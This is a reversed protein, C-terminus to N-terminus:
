HHCTLNDVKENFTSHQLCSLFVEKLAVITYALTYKDPPSIFKPLDIKLILQQMKNTPLRSEISRNLDPTSSKKQKMDAAM